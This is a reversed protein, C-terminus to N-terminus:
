IQMQNTTMVVNFFLKSLKGLLRFCGEEEVVGHLAWHCNLSALTVAKQGCLEQDQRDSYAVTPWCCPLPIQLWLVSSINGWRCFVPEVGAERRGAKSCVM